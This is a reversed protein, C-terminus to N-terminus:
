QGAGTALAEALQHLGDHLPDESGAGMARILDEFFREPPADGRADETDAAFITVGEKITEAVILMDLTKPDVATPDASLIVLDALKGM